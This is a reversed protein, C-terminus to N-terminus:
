RSYMEVIAPKDDLLRVVRDDSGQWIPDLAFIHPPAVSRLVFNDPGLYLGEPLTDVACIWSPNASVIRIQSNNM